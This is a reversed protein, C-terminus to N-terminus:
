YDPKKVYSFVYARNLYPQIQENKILNVSSDDCMFWIDQHINRSIYVYHGGGIDGSHIVAGKITFDHRWDIPIDIPKNNKVLRGRNNEFRKLIIILNDSWDIVNLRRSAIRKEKCHECYYMNDGELKEHIKFGRYCDDLRNDEKNIPLILYNNKETTISCKLCSTFKCKIINQTKIEFINNLQGKLDDNLIDLFYIIFEGADQQSNGRFIKNKSGVIKKISDPNIVSGSLSYYSKIFDSVTKLNDSKDSNDIIMKCFDGNQILLQLGANLYCTNGLNNFGKMLSM